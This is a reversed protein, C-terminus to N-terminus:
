GSCRRVQRSRLSLTARQGLLCDVWLESYRMMVRLLFEPPSAKSGVAGPTPTGLLLRLLPDSKPLNNFAYTIVAFVDLTQSPPRDAAPAIEKSGWPEFNIESPTRKHWRCSRIADYHKVQIDVFLRLLPDSESLKNFTLFPISCSGAQM